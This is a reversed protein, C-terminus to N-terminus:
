AVGENRIRADYIEGKGRHMCGTCSADSLSLDYMCRDSMAHKLDGPLNWCGYRHGGDIKTREHVPHILVAM